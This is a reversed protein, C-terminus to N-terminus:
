RNYFELEDSIKKNYNRLHTCLTKYDDRTFLTRSNVSVRKLEQWFPLTDQIIFGKELAFKYMYGLTARENILTM